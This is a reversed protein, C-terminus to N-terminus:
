LMLTKRLHHPMNHSGGSKLVNGATMNTQRMAKLLITMFSCNWHLMNSKWLRFQCNLTKNETWLAKRDEDGKKMKKPLDDYKADVFKVHKIAEDLSKRLEVVTSNLPALKEDLKEVLINTLQETRITSMRTYLFYCISYVFSVFYDFYFCIFCFKPWYGASALFCYSNSTKM